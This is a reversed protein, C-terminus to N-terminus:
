QRNTTYYIKYVPETKIRRNIIMVSGTAYLPNVGIESSYFSANKHGTDCLRIPTAHAFLGGVM